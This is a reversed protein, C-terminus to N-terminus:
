SFLYHSSEALAPLKGGTLHRMSPVRYAVLAGQRGRASQAQLAALNATLRLPLHLSYLVFYDATTQSGLVALVHQLTFVVLRDPQCSGPVEGRVHAMGHRDM